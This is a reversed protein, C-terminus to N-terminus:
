PDLVVAATLEDASRSVELETDRRLTAVLADIKSRARRAVVDPELLERREDFPPQQPPLREELLIVHFGFRTEVVPSHQGAAAIAHAAAAFVADFQGDPHVGAPDFARGDPTVPPLQEVKLSIPGGSLESARERFEKPDAIGAVEKAVREALKRAAEAQAPDSVVAVAHSTRVAVPRDLEKWREATLANVEAATPPGVARAAAHFREVLARAHASRLAVAVTDRREPDSRQAVAFLADGIARDLATPLKLGQAAAISTVTTAAIEHEGVRAVIGAPLETHATAAVPESSSSCGVLLAGFVTALSSSPTM